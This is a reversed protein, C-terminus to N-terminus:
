RLVENDDTFIQNNKSRREGGNQGKRRERKAELMTRVKRIRTEKLIDGIGLEPLSIQSSSV